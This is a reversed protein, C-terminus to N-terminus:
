NGTVRAQNGRTRCKFIVRIEVTDIIRAPSLTFGHLIVRFDFNKKQLEPRALVLTLGLARRSLSSLVLREVLWAVSILSTDYVEFRVKLIQPSRM